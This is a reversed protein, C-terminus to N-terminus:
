AHYIKLLEYLMLCIGVFMADDFNQQESQFILIFENLIQSKKVFFTYNVFYKAVSKKM